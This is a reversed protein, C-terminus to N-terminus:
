RRQKHAEVVLNLGNNLIDTKPEWNLICRAKFPDACLFEMENKRRTIAGWDPDVASGTIEKIRLLVDRVSVAKGAGINFLEHKGNPLDTELVRCYAEVIDDVYTFGWRQTGSTARLPRAKLCKEIASPILKRPNDDPGYPPFLRLTVTTIGYRQSYFTCAAEAQVKTLAYLNFPGIAAEETLREQGGAYVFCSSTNVFLEVGCIKSAELLNIAGLVNAGLMGPAEAPQHEVAYATALHCIVEPAFSRIARIVSHTDQLDANYLEIRPPSSPGARLAAAAIARRTSPERAGYMWTTQGYAGQGRVLPYVRATLGVM